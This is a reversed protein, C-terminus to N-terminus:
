LDACYLVICYYLRHQWRCCVPPGPCHKHANLTHPRFYFLNLNAGLFVLAMSPKLNLPCGIGSVLDLQMSLTIVLNSDPQSYSLTVTAPRAIQTVVLCHRRHRSVIITVYAVVDKQLWNYFLYWVPVIRCLPALLPYLIVYLCLSMDFFLM